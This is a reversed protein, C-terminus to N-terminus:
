QDKRDTTGNSSPATPPPSSLPQSALLIAKSDADRIGTIRSVVARVAKGVIFHGAYLGVAPATSIGAFYSIACSGVLAKVGDVLSKKYLHQRGIQHLTALLVIDVAMDSCGAIVSANTLQFVPNLFPVRDPNTITTSFALETMPQTFTQYAEVCESSNTASQFAHTVLEQLYTSNIEKSLVTIGQEGEVRGIIEAAKSFASECAAIYSQINEAGSNLLRQRLKGAVALSHVSQAGGLVLRGVTATSAMMSLFYNVPTTCATTVMTLLTSRSAAPWTSPLETVALSM